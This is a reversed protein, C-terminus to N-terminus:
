RRKHLKVVAGPKKGSVLQGVHDAWRQLAQAIQREDPSRNYIGAVGARHGSFHNLCAEIIHPEVGIDAMRTAVTRRLDHVRWAKVSGTLRRDLDLKGYSWNTFGTGARDGFLAGRESQPASRIIDLAPVSLTIVHARNNKARTAPLAWTGADLDLENWRM